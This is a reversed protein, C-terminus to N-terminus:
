PCVPAIATDTVKVHLRVVRDAAVPEPRDAPGGRRGARYPEERHLLRLRDIVQSGRVAFEIDIQPLMVVIKRTLLGPPHIRHFM